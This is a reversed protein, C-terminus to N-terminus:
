KLNHVCVFSYLIDADNLYYITHLTYRINPNKKCKSISISVWNLSLHLIRPWKDDDRCLHHNWVLVMLLVTTIITHAM